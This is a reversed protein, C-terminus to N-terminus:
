SQFNVASLSRVCFEFDSFLVLRDLICFAVSMPLLLPLGSSAVILHRFVSSLHGVTCQGEDDKTM